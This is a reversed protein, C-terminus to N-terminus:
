FPNIYWDDKHPKFNNYNIPKTQGNVKHIFVICYLLCPSVYQISDFYNSNDLDIVHFVKHRAPCDCLLDENSQYIALDM